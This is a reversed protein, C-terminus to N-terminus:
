DISPFTQAFNDSFQNFHRSELTRIKHSIFYLFMYPTFLNYLVPSNSLWESLVYKLSSFRRENWPEQSMKGYCGDLCRVKLLLINYFHSRTDTCCGTSIIFVKSSGLKGEWLISKWTPTGTISIRFEFPSSETIAGTELSSASAFHLQLYRRLRNENRSSQDNRWNGDVM